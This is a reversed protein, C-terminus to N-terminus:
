ARWTGIAFPTVSSGNSDTLMASTLMQPLDPGLAGMACILDGAV